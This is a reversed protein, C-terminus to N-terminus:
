FKIINTRIGGIGSSCGCYTPPDIPYHILSLFSGSSSKGILKVTLKSNFLEMGVICYLFFMCFFL